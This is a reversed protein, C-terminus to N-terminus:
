FQEKFYKPFFGLINFRSQFAKISEINNLGGLLQISILHEEMKKSVECYKANSFLFNDNRKKEPYKIAIEELNFIGQPTTMVMVSAGNHNNLPNLNFKFKDLHYAPNGQEKWIELFEEKMEAEVEAVKKDINKFIKERLDQEEKDYVKQITFYEDMIALYKLDNISSIKEM